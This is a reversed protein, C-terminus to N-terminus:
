ELVSPDQRVEYEALASFFHSWGCGVAMTEALSDAVDPRLPTGGGLAQVRWALKARHELSVCRLHAQEINEALVLIGHNALLAACSSGIGRANAVAIAADNVGGEYEPYLVLDDKVFASLQDYVPPVKHAAAWVTAWEPHHHVVVSIDTRHEHVALHLAINGTVGWPGEVVEGCANITIVDSARVDAWRLGFPSAFFIGDRVRMSIHGAIRDNFGERWLMRHLLALRQQETLLSLDLKREACQGPATM